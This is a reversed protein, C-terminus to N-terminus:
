SSRSRPGGDADYPLRSWSSSPPSDSPDISAIAQCSRNRQCAVLLQQEYGGGSSHARPSERAASSTSTAKLLLRDYPM